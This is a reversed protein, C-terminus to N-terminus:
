RSDALAAEAAPRARVADAPSVAVRTRRQLLDDVDLALEHTTAYRLEAETTDLGDAVPTLPGAAAVDTALTGYRRVLHAAAAPLGVAIRALQDRDAAGILPLSATTCPAAGIGARRLAADLADQAMRRYTTLKGGVVTVMGDEATLVAHKRSIDATSADGTDLLPRLGAYSGIMDARHLPTRLAANLTDLLFDIEADSPPRYTRCRM